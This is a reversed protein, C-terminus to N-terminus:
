PMASPGAATSGAETDTGPKARSRACTSARTSAAMGPAAPATAAASSVPDCAAIGGASIAAIRSEPSACRSETEPRCMAITMPTTKAVTRM